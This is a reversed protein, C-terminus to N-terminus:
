PMEKEGHRRRSQISGGPGVEVVIAAQPQDLGASTVRGQQSPEGRIQSRIKKDTSGLGATSEPHHPTDWSRDVRM